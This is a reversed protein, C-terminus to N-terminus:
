RSAEIAAALTEDPYVVARGKGTSKAVYMAADARRIAEDPSGGPPATAIGLSARFPVSEGHVSFPIEFAALIDHAVAAAEVHGSSVLIVFEDGGLRALLMTDTMRAQLRESVEILLEDGTAHGFHDNVAKFGDLDIFIVAPEETAGLTAELHRAFSARNALGTLPDEGALRELEAERSNLAAVTTRLDWATVAQRVLVLTVIVIGNITLFSGLAHGGLVRPTAIAIAGLLPIYPTLLEAGTDAGARSGDSTRAAARTAWALLVYALPWLMSVPNSSTYTGNNAMWTFATDATAMLVLAAAVMRLASRDHSGGWQVVALALVALLLDTAPYAIGIVYAWLDTDEVHFAPGLVLAWAIFLLSASVLCGDLVTRLHFRAGSGKAFALLGAVVFPVAGLYAVDAISPFPVEDGAVLEFYGWIVEGLGWLLMGGALLTWATRHTRHTRAHRLVIAAGVLATLIGVTDSIATAADPGGWGSWVVATAVALGTAVAVWPARGSSRLDGAGLSRLSRM